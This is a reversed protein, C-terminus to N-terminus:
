VFDHLVYVFRSHSDTMVWGGQWRLDGRGKEEEEEELSDRASRKRRPFSGGESKAALSEAREDEAGEAIAARARAKAARAPREGPVKRGRVGDGPGFSLGDGGEGRGGGM